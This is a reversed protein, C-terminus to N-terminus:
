QFIMQKLTSFGGFYRDLPNTLHVYGASLQITLESDKKQGILYIHFHKLATIVALLEKRTTCYQLKSKNMTKSM